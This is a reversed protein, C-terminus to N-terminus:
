HRSASMVPSLHAHFELVVIELYKRSFTGGGQGGPIGLAMDLM